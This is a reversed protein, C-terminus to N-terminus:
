KGQPMEDYIIYSAKYTGKDVLDKLWLDAASGEKVYFKRLYKCGSFVGDGLKEIKDSLQIKTINQCDKFAYSGITTVSEPITASSLWTCGEFIRESLTTLGSPLFDINRIAMCSAFAKKGINTVSDPIEITALQECSYFAGDSITTVTTPLYVATITTKTFAAEGIVTVPKGDIVGPVVVEAPCDAYVGTITIAGNVEKYKFYKADSPTRDGNPKDPIVYGGTTGDGNPDTTADPPNKEGGCSAFAFVSVLVLSIVMIMAFFKKM